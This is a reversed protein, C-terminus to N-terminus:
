AANKRDVINKINESIKEQLMEPATLFLGIGGKSNVNNIFQEQEKERDDTPKTWGPKKVEVALFVAFTCGVMEHTITVPTLGILDSAGDAELGARLLRLRQCARRADGLDGSAIAAILARVGDMTYFQGRNNRLLRSGIKSAQQSIRKVINTEEAAM